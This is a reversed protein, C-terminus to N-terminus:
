VDYAKVSRSKDVARSKYIGINEKIIYVSQESLLHATRDKRWKCGKSFTLSFAHVM